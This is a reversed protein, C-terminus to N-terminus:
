RCTASVVCESTADEAIALYGDEASRCVISSRGEPVVDWLGGVMMPNVGASLEPHSLIARRIGNRWDEAQESTWSKPNFSPQVLIAAGGSVLRDVVEDFFADYCIAVGLVGADTEIADISKLDAASLDLGDEMELEILNVKRQRGLLSGDQGFVYSTNYVNGGEPILASGAVVTARYKAALHSFTERYVREMEEGRALLLARTPSCRYRRAMEEVQGAHLGAIRVAAERLSTCDRVADWHGVFLLGLGVDEPFAVLNPGDGFRREAMRMCREAADRFTGPTRYDEPCIRMQIAVLTPTLDCVQRIM